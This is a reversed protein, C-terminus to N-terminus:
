APSASARKGRGRAVVGIGFLGTILMAWAGPEPVSVAQGWPNGSVINYGSSYSGTTATLTGANFTGAFDGVTGIGPVNVTPSNLLIVGGQLPSLSVGAIEINWSTLYGLAGTETFSGISNTNDLTANGDTFSYSLPQVTSLGSIKDEFIMQGTINGIGSSSGGTFTAGNFSYQYAANADFAAVTASLAVVALVARFKM